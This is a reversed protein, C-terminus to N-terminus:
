IRASAFQSCVFMVLFPFWLPDSCIWCCNSSSEVKCRLFGGDRQHRQRWFLLLVNISGFCGLLQRRSRGEQSISLFLVGCFEKMGVDRRVQPFMGVDRRVKRGSCRHSLFCGINEEDRCTGHAMGIMGSPGSIM